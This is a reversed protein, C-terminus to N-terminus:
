PTRGEKESGPAFRSRALMQFLGDSYPRLEKVKDGEFEVIAVGNATFLVNSPEIDGHPTPMPGIQRYTEAYELIVTNPPVHIAKEIKLSRDTFANAVKAGRKRFADHGKTVNPGVRRQGEPHYMSVMTEVDGRSVAAMFTRALKELEDMSPQKSM